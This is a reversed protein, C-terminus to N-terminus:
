NVAPCYCPYRTPRCAFNFGITIQHFGGNNFVIPNSQYSYTYAFMLKKYNVGVFPTVYKLNQNKIESGEVFELADLSTRYSFGGWLKGFSMDYYGKLNFDAFAQKPGYRYSYLISPELSWKRGPRSFTYGTSVLLNRLNSTIQGNSNVGANDLANKLTAHAYFNYLHYSMGFDLNFETNNLSNEIIALDTPDNFLSQDISYQIAGASLGFSLMNLDLEDRSFMLHHAYTVYGGTQQTFGNEDTFFNAGIGSSNSVKQNYAATFLGPTDGNGGLWNRRGTLRIQACNAAGAMSPHILYYNDTLYDSYIPLGEQAYVNIGTFIFVLLLGIQSIKQFIKMITM